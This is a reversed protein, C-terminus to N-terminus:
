SNLEPLNRVSWQCTSCTRRGAAVDDASLGAHCGSCVDCPPRAAGIAVEERHVQLELEALEHITM